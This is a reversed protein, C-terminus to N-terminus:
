LRTGLHRALREEFQLQNKRARKVYPTQKLGNFFVNRILNGPARLPREFQVMLTVRDQKTDNWVEHRNTDDFIRLEGPEWSFKEPGVRITCAERDDPVILGLHCNIMGKTVGRHAVIHSNPALISFLANVIGPIQNLVHDTIPCLQCAGESRHGFGRLWFTKWQDGTTIRQQDPSIEQFAPVIDRIELVTLAEARISIWNDILASEWEFTGSPFVVPDGVESYRAIFRNLAPRARRKLVRIARRRPDERWSPLPKKAKKAKKAPDHRTPRINSSSQMATM